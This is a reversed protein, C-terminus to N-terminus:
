IGSHIKNYKERFDVYSQLIDNGIICISNNDKKTLDFLSLIEWIKYYIPILFPEGGIFKAENLHPLFEELQLLFADDYIFEAKENTNFSSSNRGPCMICQLNCNNSLEFEMVTPYKSIKSSVIDYLPPLLGSFNKNKIIDLCLECGSSLDSEHLKNRFM